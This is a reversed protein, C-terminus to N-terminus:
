QILYVNKDNLIKSCSASAKFFLTAGFTKVTNLYKKDNLIKLCSASARFVSHARFENYQIYIKIM